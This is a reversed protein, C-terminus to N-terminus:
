WNRILLEGTKKRDANAGGVTYAIELRQMSLGAFTDRMAPIDNVSIMMRGKISKALDAMRAYQELGFPPHPCKRPRNIFANIGSEKSVRWSQALRSVSAGPQLSRQVLEVKFSDAHRRYRPRRNVPQDLITGM